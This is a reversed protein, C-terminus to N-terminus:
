LSFVIKIDLIILHNSLIKPSVSIHNKSMGYYIMKKTLKGLDGIIARWWRSCFDATPGVNAWSRCVISVDLGLLPQCALTPLIQWGQSWCGVDTQRRFAIQSSVAKSGNIALYWNDGPLILLCIVQFVTM